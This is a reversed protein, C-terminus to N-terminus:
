SSGNSGSLGEPKQTRGAEKRGEPYRNRDGLLLHSCAFHTGSSSGKQEMGVEWASAAVPPLCVHARLDGSCVSGCVGAMCRWVPLSVRLCPCFRGACILFFFFFILCVQTKM